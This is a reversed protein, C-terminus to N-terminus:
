RGSHREALVVKVPWGDELPDSSDLANAVAIMEPKWAARSRTALAAVTEGARARV